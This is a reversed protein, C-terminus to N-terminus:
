RCASLKENGTTIQPLYVLKTQLDSTIPFMSIIFGHLHLFCAPLSGYDALLYIVTIIQLRATRHPTTGTISKPFFTAGGSPVWGLVAAM